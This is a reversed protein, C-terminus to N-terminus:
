VLVTQFHWTHLADYFSPVTFNRFMKKIYFRILCVPGTKCYLINKVILDFLWSSMFCHNLFYSVHFCCSFSIFCFLVFNVFLTLALAKSLSSYYINPVLSGWFFEMHWRITNYTFSDLMAENFCKTYRRYYCGPKEFTANPWSTIQWSLIYVEKVMRMSLESRTRTWFCM